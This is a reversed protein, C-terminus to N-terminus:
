RRLRLLHRRVFRLHLRREVLADLEVLQPSRRANTPSFPLSVATATCASWFSPAGSALPRGAGSGTAPDPSLLTAASTAITATPSRGLM